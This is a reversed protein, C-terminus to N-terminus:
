AEVERWDLKANRELGRMYADVYPRSLGPFCGFRVENGRERCQEFTGDCTEFDTGRYGCREGKFEYRWACESVPLDGKGDSM